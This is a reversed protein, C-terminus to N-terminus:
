KEFVKESYLDILESYTMENMQSEYMKLGITKINLRKKGNWSSKRKLLKHIKENLLEIRDKGKNFVIRDDYLELDTLEYKRFSMLKTGIIVAAISFIFTLYFNRSIVEVFYIVKVDPPLFTGAVLVFGTILFVLIGIITLFFGILNITKLESGIEIQLTKKLHQTVTQSHFTAIKRGAKKDGSLFAKPTNGM